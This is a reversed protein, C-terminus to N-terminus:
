DFYCYNSRDLNLYYCVWIIVPVARIIIIMTRIISGVAAAVTWAVITVTVVRVIWIKMISIIIVRQM